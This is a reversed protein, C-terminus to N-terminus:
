RNISKWVVNQDIILDYKESIAVSKSFSELYQGKELKFIKFNEEQPDIIVYYLVSQSEYLDYKLNLDKESTSPSLIEIILKPSVYQFDDNLGDCAVMIDPRVVTVDEVRWDLDSLVQCNCENNNLQTSLDTILYTVLLQHKRIPSPSMSFPLGHILEWDGEWSEYDKITYNPLHKLKIAGM